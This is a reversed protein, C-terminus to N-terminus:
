SSAYHLIDQMKSTVVVGDVTLMAVSTPFIPHTHVATYENQMYTSADADVTCNLQDPCKMGQHAKVWEAKIWIQNKQISWIEQLINVDAARHSAVGPFAGHQNNGAVTSINNVHALIKCPITEKTYKSSSQLLYYIALIGILEAQYSQLLITYCEM